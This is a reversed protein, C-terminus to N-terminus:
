AVMTNKRAEGVYKISMSVKKFIEKTKISKNKIKISSNRENWGKNSTEVKQNSM